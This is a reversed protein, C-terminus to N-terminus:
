YRQEFKLHGQILNLVYGLKRDDIPIKLSKALMTEKINVFFPGDIIKVLRLKTDVVVTGFVGALIPGMLPSILM